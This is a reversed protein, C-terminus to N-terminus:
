RLRSVGPPCAPAAVALELARRWSFNTGPPVIEDIRDWSAQEAPHV